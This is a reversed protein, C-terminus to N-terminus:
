QRFLFAIKSIEGVSLTTEGLIEPELPEWGIEINEELLSYFEELFKNKNEESVTINGDGSDQGYKKILKAREEELNKLADNMERMARALRFSIKANFPADILKNMVSTSMYIEGLSVKM